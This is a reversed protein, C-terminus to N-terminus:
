YKKFLQVRQTAEFTDPKTLNAPRDAVLIICSSWKAQPFCIAFCFPGLHEWELSPPLQFLM